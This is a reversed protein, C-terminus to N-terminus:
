RAELTVLRVRGAGERIVVQCALRQTPAADFLELTEREDDSPPALLEAGAEVEVRCVGCTASRCSFLIPAAAEDCVDILRCADTEVHLTRGDRPDFFEVTPM